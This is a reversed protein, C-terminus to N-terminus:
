HMTAGGQCTEKESLGAGAAEFPAALGPAASAATSSLLVESSPSDM